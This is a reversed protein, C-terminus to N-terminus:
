STTLDDFGIEKYYLAIVDILHKMVTELARRKVKEVLVEVLVETILRFSSLDIKHTNDQSTDLLKRITAHDGKAELLKGLKRLVIAGQAGVAVNGELDSMPISKIKPFFKRTHPYEKFLRTLVKGGYGAYDGKVDEWCNLVVKYDAMIQNHAAMM